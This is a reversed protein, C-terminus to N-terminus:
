RSSIAPRAGDRLEFADIAMGSGFVRTRFQFEHRAGRADVMGVPEFVVHEFGHLGLRSAAAENFCRGCLRRYGREMSGYNVVDHALTPQHCADCPIRQM